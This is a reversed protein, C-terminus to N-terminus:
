YVATLPNAQPIAAANLDLKRDSIVFGELRRTTLVFAQQENSYSNTRDILKSGQIEYLFDDKQCPIFFKGERDFFPKRIWYLFKLKANPYRNDINTVPELSCGIDLQGQGTVDVEFYGFDYFLITAAETSKDFEVLLTKSQCLVTNETGDLGDQKVSVTFSVTPAKSNARKALKITGRLTHQKGDLIDLIAISAVYRYGLSIEGTEDMMERYEIKPYSTIEEGKSWDVVVRLGTLDEAREANAISFYITSEPKVTTRLSEGDRELLRPEGGLEAVFIESGDIVAVASEDALSIATCFFAACLLVAFILVQKM